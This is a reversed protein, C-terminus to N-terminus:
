LKVTTEVCSKALHIEFLTGFEIQYNRFHELTGYEKQLTSSDRGAGHASSHLVLCFRPSSGAARLTPVIWLDKM